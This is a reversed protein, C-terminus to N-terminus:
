NSKEVRPLQMAEKKSMNLYVKGDRMEFQDPKVEVSTEGIGLFGGIDTHFYRVNGDDGAKFAAIEGIDDGNQSYVRKGVWEEGQAATVKKQGLMNTESQKIGQSNTDAQPASQTQQQALAVTSAGTLALAMLAPIIMKRM